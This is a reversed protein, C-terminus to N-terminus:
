DGILARYSAALEPQGVADFQQAVRGINFRPNRTFEDIRNLAELSDRALQEAESTRGLGFLCSALSARAIWPDPHYYGLTEDFVSIGECVGPHDVRAQARAERFMREVLEPDDHRLFKLAVFRELEPDWAEYVEGM